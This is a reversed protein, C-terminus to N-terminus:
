FLPAAVTGFSVSTVDLLGSGDVIVFSSGALPGSAPSLSTVAPAVAAIASSIGVGPWLGPLVNAILGRAALYRIRVLPSHRSRHGRPAGARSSM